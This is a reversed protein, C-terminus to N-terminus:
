ARDLLVMRLESTYKRGEADPLWTQEPTPLMESLSVHEQPKDSDLVRRICKCFTEVYVPSDFDLYFPKREVHVRFFARRPLDHERMFRRAGFFRDTERDARAFALDTAPFSWSERSLVMRDITIRPAHQRRPFLRVASLVHGSIVTGFFEVADFRLRGDRSRVILGSPAREVVFDTVPMIPLPPGWIMSDFLDLYYDNPSLFAPSTRITTEARNRPPLIWMQSHPLDESLAKLMSDPSPHQSMAFNPLVTNYATHVEGLVLTYDGNRIADVSEAAIMVDPSHYHAMQWGARPARFVSEVRERLADSSLDARRQGESVGLIEEWRAQLEAVAKRSPFRERLQRESFLVGDAGGWFLMLDVSTTGTRASVEDYVRQLAERYLEAARHTLWRLSTVLLSLPKAMSTLVERGIVADVDRGCDQYVLTRGAYMQGATEARSSARGTLRAFEQDLQGLAEDLRDASGTAREVRQRAADLEDIKQMCRRRLEEPGIVQLMQRLLGHPHQGYPLEFKWNVVERAALQELAKLVIEQAKEGLMGRFKAALELATKKGDCERLIAAVFPPITDVGRYHHLTNGELRFEPRRRPAIWPRVDKDQAITEALAEVAWHEFYVESKRILQPGPLVDIGEAEPEVRIWGVPGFFGISDNKVCYRQLYNAILEEHQRQRSGRTRPGSANALSRVVINLADRNQLLVAQRFRDDKAVAAIEDSVRDVDAQFRAAYAARAQELRAAADRASQWEGAALDLPEDPIKGKRIKDLIKYIRNREPKEAAADAARRVAAILRDLQERAENEVALLDDAAAAAEPAAMATVWDAPFGAGRLVVSRWFGWREGELVALHGPVEGAAAADMRELVTTTM